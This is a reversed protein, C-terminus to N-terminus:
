AIKRFEFSLLNWSYRKFRRSSKEVNKKVYIM